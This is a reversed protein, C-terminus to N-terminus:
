AEMESAICALYFKAPQPECAKFKVKAYNFRICLAFRGESGDEREYGVHRAFAADAILRWRDDALGWDQLTQMLEAGYGSGMCARAERPMTENFSLSLGFTDGVSGDAMIDFQFDVSPALRMFETCRELMPVDFASFGIERFRDGLCEPGEACRVLETRDMYGGIRMPAGERGPFLGVYAPLWGEPMRALTDFYAQARGAEGVCELFPTVLEHRAFQQLYVGAREAEGISTDLEIGCGVTEGPDCIHSFWDLMGQYGFGAGSAFRAGPKVFGHVSLLDFCPEGLLPFELFAVPYGDGILTREYVPRALGISDGFLAEGRGDGAAMAYLVDFAEMQTPKRM